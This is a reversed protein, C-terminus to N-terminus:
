SEHSSQLPFQSISGNSDHSAKLYSSYTDFLVNFKIQYIRRISEIDDRTLNNTNILCELDDIIGWCQMIWDEIDYIKVTPNSM